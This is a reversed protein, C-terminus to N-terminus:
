RHWADVLDPGLPQQRDRARRGAQDPHGLAAGEMGTAGVGLFGVPTRLRLHRVQTLDLGTVQHRAVQGGALALLGPFPDPLGLGFHRRSAPSSPAPWILAGDCVPDVPGPVPVLVPSRSFTVPRVRCKGTVRPTTKRRFIPATRATSPMSKATGCPWGRPRTPSDPQPLVVVPRSSVRSSSGVPPVM